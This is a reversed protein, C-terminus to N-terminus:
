WSVGRRVRFGGKFPTFQSSSASSCRTASKRLRVPLADLSSRLESIGAAKRLDRRKLPPKRTRILCACVSSTLLRAAFPPACTDPRVLVDSGRGLRSAYRHSASSLAPYFLMAVLLEGGRLIVGAALTPPM